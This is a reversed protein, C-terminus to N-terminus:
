IEIPVKQFLNSEILANEIKAITENNGQAYISLAGMYDADFSFNDEGLRMWSGSTGNYPNTGSSITLAGLQKFVADLDKYIKKDHPMIFQIMLANTGVDVVSFHHM